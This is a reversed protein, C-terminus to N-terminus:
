VESPEPLAVYKGEIIVEAEAEAGSELAKTEQRYGEVIAILDPTSLKDMGHTVRTTHTISGSVERRDTVHGLVKAIGM